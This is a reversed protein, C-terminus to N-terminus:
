ESKDRKKRGRKSMRTECERQAEANECLPGRVSEWTDKM